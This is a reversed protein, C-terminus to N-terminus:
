STGASTNPNYAAMHTTIRVTKGVIRDRFGPAFREIQAIIAETADGSFGNPVHAYTWLPHVNGVSRRPDTLYQQGVLVFPAGADTRRPYGARQRGARCLQGCRSRHGRPSCSLSADTRHAASASMQWGLVTRWRNCRISFRVPRDSERGLSTASSHKANSTCRRRSYGL